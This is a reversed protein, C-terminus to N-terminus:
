RDTTSTSTTTPLKGLSHLACMRTLVSFAVPGGCPSPNGDLGDSFLRTDCHHTGCQPDSPLHWRLYVLSDIDLSPTHFFQVAPSSMAPPVLKLKNMNSQYLQGASIGNERQVNKSLTQQFAPPEGPKTVDTEQSRRLETHRSWRHKHQREFVHFTFCLM